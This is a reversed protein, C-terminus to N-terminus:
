QCETGQLDDIIVGVDDVVGQSMPLPAYSVVPTGFGFGGGFGRRSGQDVNVVREKVAGVKLIEPRWVEGSGTTQAVCLWISEEGTALPCASSGRRIALLRSIWISAV